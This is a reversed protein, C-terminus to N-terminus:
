QRSATAASSLVRTQEQLRVVLRQRPLSFCFDLRIENSLMQEVFSDDTARLPFSNRVSSAVDPAELDPREGAVQALTGCRLAKGDLRLDRRLFDM